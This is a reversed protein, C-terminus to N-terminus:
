AAKRRGRDPSKWTARTGGPRLLVMPLAVWVTAMQIMWYAFPYWIMWFVIGINRDEYRMDIILAMLIQIMCTAAVFTGALQPMISDVRLGTPLTLVHGLGWLVLVLWMLYAWLISVGVELYVIWMRHQRWQFLIPTYKILVQIGGMAWRVRQRWLGKLTEPTLIWCLASSEYRVEWGSTQLKWSIDIDETLMDQSWFGVAHLASRRFATIVGSVTFIRGYIRQARKIFGIITSFEGVQIRSLLNSRNRIRPNGTVAGVSPGSQFHRIMFPIADRDLLADGDICVLYEYRAVLAAVTLGVAKGQNRALHVVRVRPNRAAIADLIDPTADKSADNTAIIEFEPYDLTLLHEIVEEAHSGENFMPVIISVGPPDDKAFDPLRRPKRLELRFFYFVAGTTWLYAMFLPYYFVFTSLARLARCLFAFIVQSRGAQAHAAPLVM